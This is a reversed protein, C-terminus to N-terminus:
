NYFQALSNLSLLSLHPPLMVSCLSLSLSLLPPPRHLMLHSHHHLSSLLLAHVCLSLPPASFPIRAIVPTLYTCLSPSKLVSANFVPVTEMGANEIAWQLTGPSQEAHGDSCTNNPKKNPKKGGRGNKMVRSSQNKNKKKRDPIVRVQEGWVRASTCVTLCSFAANM